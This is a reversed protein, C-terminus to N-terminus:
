ETEGDDDFIKSAFVVRVRSSRVPTLEHTHAFQHPEIKEGFAFSPTGGVTTMKPLAVDVAIGIVSGHVEGHHANTMRPDVPSFEWLHTKGDSDDMTTYSVFLIGLDFFVGIVDADTPLHVRVSASDPISVSLFKM